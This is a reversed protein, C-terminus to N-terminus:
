WCLHFTRHEPSRLLNKGSEWQDEGVTQSLLPVSAPFSLAASLLHGKNLSRHPPPQVSPPPVWQSNAQSEHQQPDSLHAFDPETASWDCAYHVAHQRQVPHLRHSESPRFCWRLNSSVWSWVDLQCSRTKLKLLFRLLENLYCLLQFTTVSSKSDPHPWKMGWHDNTRTDEPQKLLKKRRNKSNKPMKKSPQREDMTRTTQSWKYDNPPDKLPKTCNIRM